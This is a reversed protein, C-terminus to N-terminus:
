HAQGEEAAPADGAPAAGGASLSGNVLKECLGAPVNVWEHADGDTAAQAACSHAGNAAACDNKGAKVVGYCKETTAAAAAEEANANLAFAGGAVALTVAGVLLANLTKNSM